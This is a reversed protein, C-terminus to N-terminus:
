DSREFVRLPIEQTERALKRGIAYMFFICWNQSQQTVVQASHYRQALDVLSSEGCLGALMRRAPASFASFPTHGIRYREYATLVVM